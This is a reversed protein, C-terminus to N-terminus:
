GPPPKVLWKDEFPDYLGRLPFHDHILVFDSANGTVVVANQATAISAIALDAGTKSKKAGVRAALTCQGDASRVPGGYSAAAGLLGRPPSPPIRVWSPSAGRGTKLVPAISREAVEGVPYGATRSAILIPRTPGSLARQAPGNPPERAQRSVPLLECIWGTLLEHRGFAGRRM